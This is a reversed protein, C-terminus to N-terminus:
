FIVNNKKKFISSTIEILNIPYEQFYKDNIKRLSDNDYKDILQNIVDFIDKKSLTLYQYKIDTCWFNKLVTERYSEKLLSILLNVNNIDGSISMDKIHKNLLKFIKKIGIGKIGDISRLKDGIVSLIFPLQVSTIYNDSTIEHQSSITSILNDKSLIKSNDQKSVLIYTNDFNVYQFDYQQNSIIFNTTVEDSAEKMIVYPIISNELNKSEIFYVDPIYEILLKVFPIATEIMQKLVFNNVDKNLRFEYGSRYNDLILRNKLKSSFPYQMYLYIKSHLKNKTFFMRYHAALNIINSIFQYIKENQKVRLYEDMQTNTMRNIVCELNIFVNVKSYADISIGESKMLENLKVFKIKSLNFTLDMM